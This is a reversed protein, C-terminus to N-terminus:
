ARALAENVIGLLEGRAKLHISLVHDDFDHAVKQCHEPLRAVQAVDEPCHEGYHVLVPGRARDIAALVRTQLAARRCRSLDARTVAAYAAIDVQPTFALTLSAQDCHMLAASAGM